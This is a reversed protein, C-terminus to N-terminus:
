KEAALTSPQMEQVLQKLEPDPLLAKELNRGVRQDIVIDPREAEILAKAVEFNLYNVFIVTEFQESFYPQLFKGFSDHIFLVKYKKKDCGGTVPLRAYPLDKYEALEKISTLREAKKTICSRKINIDPATETVLGRLNMLNTLDGSFNEVWIKEENLELPVIDPFWEQMRNIIERYVLYTGDHNWHSDTKLYLQGKEKHNLFLQQVDILNKFSSHENAYTVIQEYKSKGRNAQLQYPLHEEYIPEKNPIPLFLYKIGLSNLWKERDVLLSSTKELQSDTYRIKGLYDYIAADGNFFYWNNSGITVMSSPSVKFIRCLTYNHLKVIQSRFGFHDNVYADFKEPFTQISSRSMILQPFGALKRKEAKSVTQTDSTVSVCMPTALFIIFFLSIVIHSFSFIKM